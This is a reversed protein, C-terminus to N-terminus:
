EVPRRSDLLDKEAEPAHLREKEVMEAIVEDPAVHDEADEVAMAVDSREADPPLVDTVNLLPLPSNQDFRLRYIPEPLAFGATELANKVAPIARSRAKYWDTETQDIWGLFKVVVNSDGVQEIRASPPPNKLVFGLQRLANVGLHRAVTPDADANIGLEFDFRREPNRTYNLIVAKFVTSNPIRLQNGDLTMLITARSTLRIVRGEYHDIVIWDNARFPQRVSLMVSAVYNEIMDRMAFGLAIGVIGAGGLVAGLLGGAGIMQLAIALGGIVFVFRIASAILETLFSSPVLRRWLWTSAALGYGALAVLLAVALAAGILPMITVFNALKGSFGGLSQVSDEVSVKREVGNEVTVVGVIRSAIQEARGIDEPAAVTGDLVVVGQRVSVRVNRLAPVASFIGEIRRAIREDSGAESTDGITQAPAPSTEAQPQSIAESLVAAAPTAPM